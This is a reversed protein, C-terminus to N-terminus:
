EHRLAEIPDKRAAKIAPITGFVVGIVISIVAALVIAHWSIVPKLSTYAFLAGEVALSLAIGVVGGIVSLVAAELMFQGLIQRSTAGLAKRVGIEHMRETVSLLMINMIGVGGIFLSIIAVATIWDSLLQVSTSGLAETQQPSLVSFDKQGGHAAQLRTSLSTITSKMVAPTDAKALVVYANANNQTLSAATQYPIFIANDFSATPSFPVSKFSDFVGRVTFVQGRFTFTQGLPAPEGFLTIAVHSGLVAVNASDEDRDWFGGQSVKQNLVQPLQSSTAVLLANTPRSSTTSVQGSALGLPAAISVGPTQQVTQVDTTTLGPTGLGFLVDDTAFDGVGNNVHGPRITILNKGFHTIQGAIQQKVGEGIGVVAVVAVVGVIVGLMTLMSRWKSARVAALVMRTNGRM